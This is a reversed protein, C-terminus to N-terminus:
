GNFMKPNDKYLQFLGEAIASVLEENDRWEMHSQGHFICHFIEHFLTVMKENEDMVNKNLVITHNTLDTEGLLVENNEDVLGEIKKVSYNRWGIKINQPIKM